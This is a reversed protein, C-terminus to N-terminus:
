VWIRLAYHALVSARKEVSSSDFTSGEDILDVSEEGDNMHTSVIQGVLRFTDAATKGTDDPHRYAAIKEIFSSNSASSNEARRLLCMNGISNITTDRFRDLERVADEGQFPTIQEPYDAFWKEPDFTQPIVHELTFEETPDLNCDGSKNRLYNEVCELYYRARAIEASKGVDFTLSAFSTEFAANSPQRDILGELVEETTKDKIDKCFQEFFRDLMNTSKQCVKHRVLLVLLREAVKKFRPDEFGYQDAAALLPVVSQTPNTKGINFLLMRLDDSLTHCNGSDDTYDNQNVITGYYDAAHKLKSLASRVSSYQPLFVSNFVKALEMRSIRRNAVTFLYARLFPEINSNSGVLEGLQQWDSEIKSIPVPSKEKSGKGMLMNKIRDASTLRVGTGNLSEFVQFADEEASCDIRIIKM